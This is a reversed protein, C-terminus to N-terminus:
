RDAGACTSPSLACHRWACISLGSSGGAGEPVLDKKVLTRSCGTDLLIDSVYCGEVSGPRSVGPKPTFQLEKVISVGQHNMRRAGCFLVNSPCNSSYHSTVHLQLLVGGAVSREKAQGPLLWRVPPPTDEQRAPGSQPSAGGLPRFHGMEIIAGSAVFRRISQYLTVVGEVEMEDGLGSMTM